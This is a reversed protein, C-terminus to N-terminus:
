EQCLVVLECVPYALPVHANPSAIKEAVEGAGSPLANAGVAAGVRQASRPVLPADLLRVASPFTYLEPSRSLAGCGHVQQLRRAM